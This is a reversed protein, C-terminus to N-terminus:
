GPVKDLFGLVTALRGDDAAVAVDFGVVVCAIYRELRRRSLWKVQGDPGVDRRAVQAEHLGAPGPRGARHDQAKGLVEVHRQAVAVREQQGTTVGGGVGLVREVALFQGRDAGGQAAHESPV